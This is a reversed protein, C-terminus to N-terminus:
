RGKPTRKRREPSTQTPAAAASFASFSTGNPRPPSLARPLFGVASLDLGARRFDEYTM